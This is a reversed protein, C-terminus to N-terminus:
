SSPAELAIPYLIGRGLFLSDRNDRAVGRAYLERDGQLVERCPAAAAAARRAARPGRWRGARASRLAMALLVLAVLQTTAGQDLRRRDRAAQTLLRASALRWASSRPRQLGDRAPGLRRPGAGDRGPHRRRESQTIGVVLTAEDLLPQRYRYESAVRRRDARRRSDRSLVQSWRPTGRPAARWWTCGCLRALREPAFGSRRPCGTRESDLHALVTNRIADPQEFIEQAHLPPLRRRSRAADWDLTEVAARDAGPPTVVHRPPGSCRLM